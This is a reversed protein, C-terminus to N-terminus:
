NCVYLIVEATTADINVQYIVSTRIESVIKRFCIQWQREDESHKMINTTLIYSDLEKRTIGMKSKLTDYAIQVAQDVPLDENCPMTYLPLLTSKRYITDFLILDEQAWLAYPLEKEMAWQDQLEYLHARSTSLVQGTTANIEISLYPDAEYEVIYCVIWEVEQSEEDVVLTAKTELLTLDKFDYGSKLATADAIQIAQQKSFYESTEVQSFPLKAAYTVGLHLSTLLVTLLFIVGFNIKKM